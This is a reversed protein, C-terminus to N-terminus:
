CSATLHLCATADQCCARQNGAVLPLAADQAQGYVAPVPALSEAAEDDVVEHRTSPSSSESLERDESICGPHTRHRQMPGAPEGLDAPVLHGRVEAQHESVM